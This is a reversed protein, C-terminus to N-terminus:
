WLHIYKKNSLQDAIRVQKHYRIVFEYLIMVRQNHSVYGHNKSPGLRFLHNVTRLLMTSREMTFQYDYGSPLIMIMNTPKGILLMTSREMAITYIYLLLKYYIIIDNDHKNTFGRSYSRTSQSTRSKRFAGPVRRAPQLSLESEIRLALAPSATSATSIHIGKKQLAM